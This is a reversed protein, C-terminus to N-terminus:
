LRVLLHKCKLTEIHAHLEYAKTYYVQSFTVSTTFYTPTTFVSQTLDNTKNSQMLSLLMLFYALLILRIQEVSPLHDPFNNYNALFLVM